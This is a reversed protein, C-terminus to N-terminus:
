NLTKDSPNTSTGGSLDLAEGTPSIIKDDMNSIVESRPSLTGMSCAM